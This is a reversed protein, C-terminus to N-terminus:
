GATSRSAIQGYQTDKIRRGVLGLQVAFPLQALDVEVPQDDVLAVGYTYPFLAQGVGPAGPTGILPRAENAIRIRANLVQTRPMEIPEPLKLINANQPVSNQGIQTVGGTMAYLGGGAGFRSCPWKLQNEQGLELELLGFNLICEMLKLTGAIGANAEFDYGINQIPPQAPFIFQLYIQWVEMGYSLQGSQDMNTYWPLNASNRGPANFFVMNGDGGIAPTNSGIAQGAASNDGLLFSFAAITDFLIWPQGKYEPYMVDTM